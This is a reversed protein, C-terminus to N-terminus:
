QVECQGEVSRGWYPFPQELAPQSVWAVCVAQAFTKAAESEDKLTVRGTKMDLSMLVERDPGYLVFETKSLSAIKSQGLFYDTRQASDSLAVDATEYHPQALNWVFRYDGPEFHLNDFNSIDRAGYANDLRIGEARWFEYEKDDQGYAAGIMMLAALISIMTKM